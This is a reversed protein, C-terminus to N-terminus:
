VTMIWAANPLPRKPTNSLPSKPEDSLDEWYSSDKSQETDASCKLDVDVRSPLLKPRTYAYLVVNFLGSSSFVVGAFATASFPVNAGSFSLWRVVAMPFVTIIYIIPYFLMQTGKNHPTSDEGISHRSDARVFRLRRRECVVIGKLVLAIVIYCVLNVIAALWLWVYELALREGQYDSTIWCWYQTNGYYREGKHVGMSIGIILILFLWIIALVLLGTEQRIRVHFVITLFTHIAIALSTLAVGVDGVQKMVGQVTCIGGETVQAEVIWKVDIIGGIAQILDSVLLNVFYYHVHTSVSWTRSGNLNRATIISYYTIYLLLSTVALASLSASIVIFGIGLRVGVDFPTSSSSASYGAGSSTTM